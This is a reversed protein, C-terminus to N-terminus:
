SIEVALGHGSVKDPETRVETVLAWEDGDSCFECGSETLVIVERDPPQEALRTILEAVTM